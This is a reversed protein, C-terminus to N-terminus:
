FEKAQKRRKGVATALWLVTAVACAIGYIDGYRAYFTLPAADAPVPVDAWLVGPGDTRGAGDSLFAAVRGSPAIVCTVGTNCARVLPVRNEVARLVANRMHQRPQVHADFWADNTVNVLMRAGARVDARALDPLIDEFCVLPALPVAANGARFIASEKGATISAPWGWAVQWAAPVLGALPIFEGGIVLHRKDYEGAIRGEVDFLFASNFYQPEGSERVATDLSGTLIPTGNTCLSYVLAYSNESNRVDDPLATEPWIVLEVTPDGQAKRTLEALREYIGLIKAAVWKEDQPISPQVLAVRISREPVPVQEARWAGWGLALAVLLAGAALARGGRREALAWALLANAFAALGTVLWVGGFEALQVAPLWPTLAVGLTNWPFGGFLWGRLFESGSWIVALAAAFGAAGGRWRNALWVAPLVYLACYASVALWGLVTVHTLWRLSLLWFLLSAVFGMKLATRAPVQRAMVLLPVLAAWAAWTWELPPFAAFLLLGSAGACAAATWEAPNSRLIKM